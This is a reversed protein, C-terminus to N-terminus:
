WPFSRVEVPEQRWEEGPRPLAMAKEPWVLSGSPQEVTVQAEVLRWGRRAYYPVLEELCFLWGLDRGLEYFIFDEARDLLRSAFGHRQFAPLTMVGGIGALKRVEGGVLGIGETVKVHSVPVRDLLLIFRWDPKVWAYQRVWSDPGFAQRSMDALAARETDSLEAERKLIIEPGRGSM